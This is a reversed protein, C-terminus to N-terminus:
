KDGRVRRIYQTQYLPEIGQPLDGLVREQGQEGVPDALRRMANLMDAFQQATAQSAFRAIQTGDFWLEWGQDKGSETIEYHESVTWKDQVM